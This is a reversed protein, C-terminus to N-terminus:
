DHAKIWHMLMEQIELLSFAIVILMIKEVPVSDDFVFYVIGVGVVLIQFIRLTLWSMVSTAVNM